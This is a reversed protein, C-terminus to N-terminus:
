PKHNEIKLKLIQLVDKKIEHKGDFFIKEFVFNKEELYSFQQNFLDEDIFEDYNSCVYWTKLKKNLHKLSEDSIDKPFESLHIILYNVKHSTMAAWRVATAGGQSFGLVTIKEPVGDLDNLLKELLSNLYHINDTIDNMRDEKTMWSAGVNGFYGKVYFRSLGEPAIVMTEDDNLEDFQKIFTKAQQSYGHLLIWLNKIKGKPSHNSFYRATKQVPLHHQIIEM